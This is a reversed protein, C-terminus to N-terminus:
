AAQATTKKIPSLQVAWCTKKSIPCRKRFPEFCIQDKILGNVRGAVASKDIGTAKAIQGRTMPTIGRYLCDIIQQRQNLTVGEARLNHISQISTDSVNTKM